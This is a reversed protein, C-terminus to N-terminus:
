RHRRGLGWLQRNLQGIASGYNSRGSYGSVVGSMKSKIEFIAAVKPQQGLAVLKLGVGVYHSTCGVDYAGENRRRDRSPERRGCGDIAIRLESDADAVHVKSPWM